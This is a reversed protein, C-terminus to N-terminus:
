SLRSNPEFVPRRDLQETSPRVYEFGSTTVLVWPEHPEDGAEGLAERGGIGLANAPLDAYLTRAKEACEVHMPPFHFGNRGVELETGLFAIPRGLTEGCMGCIRSLACQPVRKHNVRRVTGGGGAAFDLSCAFPVPVGFEPDTPMDQSAAGAAAASV